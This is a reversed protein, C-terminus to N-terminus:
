APCALAKQADRRRQERRKKNLKRLKAREHKNCDIAGITTIRLAQRDAYTLKLRWALSDAKWTQPKCAASALLENVESVTLWPAREKAWDMIRTQPVGPLIMLHNAIILACERGIEDDPLVKGHRDEFLRNLEAVRISSM